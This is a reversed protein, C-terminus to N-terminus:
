RSASFLCMLGPEPHASEGGDQWCCAAPHSSLSFPTFLWDERVGATWCAAPYGFRLRFISRSTRKDPTPQRPMETPTAKTRSCNRASLLRRRHVSALLVCGHRRVDTITDCRSRSGFWFNRCLRGSSAIFCSLSHRSPIPRLRIHFFVITIRMTQGEKWRPRRSEAAAVTDHSRKETRSIFTGTRVTTTIIASSFVDGDNILHAWFRDGSPDGSLTPCPAQFFFSYM